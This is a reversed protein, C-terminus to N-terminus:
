SNEEEESEEQEENTITSLLVLTHNDISILKIIANNIPINIILYDAIESVDWCSYTTGIKQIIGTLNDTMFTKCKIFEINNANLVDYIYPMKNCAMLSLRNDEAPIFNHYFSKNALSSSSLQNVHNTYYYTSYYRLSVYHYENNNEMLTLFWLGIKYQAETQTPNYFIFNDETDIIGFTLARYKENAPSDLAAQFMYARQNRTPLINVDLQTKKCVAIHYDSYTDRQFQLVFVDDILFSCVVTEGGISTLTVTIDEVDNITSLSTNIDNNDPLFKVHSSSNTFQKIFEKVLDTGTGTISVNKIIHNGM